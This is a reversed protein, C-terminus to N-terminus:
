IKVWVKSVASLIRAWAEDKEITQLQNFNESWTQILLKEEPPTWLARTTTPKEKLNAVDSSSGAREEVKISEQFNQVNRVNQVNQRINILELCIIIGNRTVQRNYLVLGRM